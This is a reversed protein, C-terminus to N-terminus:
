GGNQLLCNYFDKLSLIGVLKRGDVVPLHRFKERFMVELLDWANDGAQAVMVDPTMVKEIKTKTPDLKKGVVRNLLDRETFIGLLDKIPSLVVLAGVNNEMMLECAEQVSIQPEVSLLEKTMIEKALTKELTNKM